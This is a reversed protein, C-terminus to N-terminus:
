KYLCYNDCVVSIFKSIKWSFNLCLELWPQEYNTYLRGKNNPRECELRSNQWCNPRFSNHMIGWLGKYHRHWSVHQYLPFSQGRLRNVCLSRAAAECKTKRVKHTTQRCMCRNKMRECDSLCAHANNAGFHALSNAWVATRMWNMPSVCVFCFPAWQPVSPRHPRSMQAIRDRERGKTEAKARHIFLYVFPRTTNATAWFLAHKSERLGIVGSPATQAQNVGIVPAAVVRSAHQALSTGRIM